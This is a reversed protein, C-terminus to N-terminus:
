QYANAENLYTMGRFVIIKNTILLDAPEAVYIFMNYTSSQEQSM